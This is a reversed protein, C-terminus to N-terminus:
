FRYTPILYKIEDKCVSYLVTERYLSEGMFDSLRRLFFLHLRLAPPTDEEKTVLKLRGDYKIYM